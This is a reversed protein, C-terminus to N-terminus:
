ASDSEEDEGDERWGRARFEELTMGEYPLSTGTALHEEPTL